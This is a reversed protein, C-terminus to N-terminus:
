EDCVREKLVVQGLSVRPQGGLDRHTAIAGLGAGRLLERVAEAQDYGHELLLWGGPALFQQSKAIISRLDDLGDAGAVLASRPEFRLDGASLHPDDAAVYPPNSVILNFDRREIAAFWDSCRLSVNVLGLRKRNREALEVAALSRDVGLVLWQSREAALALAIAGTGTGLDLVRSNRPLDLKLSIDVLLETDPRPILTSADVELELGWFERQQLLHAIPHGELRLQLLHEFARQQAISLQREPWTFLYARDRELVRALLLEVDLRPSDSDRLERSRALCDAITPRISDPDTM